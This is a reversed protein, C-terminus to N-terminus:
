VVADILREIDEDGTWYGCSARLWGTRPMDRIVVGREATRVALEAADGPARFAILSAHGPETVVDFREGLRERCHEAMERAREFRWEPRTAIATELGALLDAALWGSDFRPAGPKPTFSGDLEYGVQSFYSPFAVRLADPDAVYLGGTADPGCLWKHASVTYFDFPRADVPIAGAAQAGDVLVPVGTAEKLERVPLVHGTTWAVHSLALLRTRPTVAAAIADFAEGSPRDRVAAVRARAGAAHIAGTLGFHEVDTTVVEDGPKLGLGALVLNCGETTGRTLALHQPEVGVEAALSARVRERTELLWEFYIPGGRGDEVDRRRRAAIAEATQRALPGVSGANLYAIRDLVPFAARAEEFTM